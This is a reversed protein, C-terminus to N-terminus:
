QGVCDSVTLQCGANGCNQLANGRAEQETAGTGTGFRTRSSAYAGCTTYTLKVECNDNGAKQCAAMAEAQAADQTTATGVGYGASGGQSGRQDDVAISDWRTGGSPSMSPGGSQSMTPGGSQGSPGGSQGSPGAAGFPNSGSAPGAAPPGAPAPAAAATNTPAAANTPANAPAPKGCSALLMTALGVLAAAGAM